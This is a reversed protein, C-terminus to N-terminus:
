RASWFFRDCLLIIQSAIQRVPARVLGVIQGRVLDISSVSDKNERRIKKALSNVTGFQSKKLSSTWSTKSIRFASLRSPIFLASGVDLLGVWMNLDIVYDGHFKGAREFATKRFTVAMPEGIPNGGSRVIRRLMQTRSLKKQDSNAIRRGKIFRNKPTVFDRLSFCFAVDQNASVSMAEFETQLCHRYLLDDQCVLKILDARANAVSNNWNAEAGVKSLSDIRVIRPDNFSRVLELTKDTSGDDSVIIEFNSFTQDLVSQITRAIYKEGNYTPICISIEPRLEAM